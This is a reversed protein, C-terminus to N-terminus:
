VYHYQAKRVALRSSDGNWCGWRHKPRAEVIKKSTLLASEFVIELVNDEDLLSVTETVDVRQPLFMNETQLITRGNLVVQAYTDLGDFALIVREGGVTQPTSFITRYIWPVEAVWQVDEEHKGRFPDPIIGHRLLDRHIETPFGQTPLYTSQPDDHQRFQWGQNLDFRQKAGMNSAKIVIVDEYAIVLVSFRHQLPVQVLIRHLLRAITESALVIKM